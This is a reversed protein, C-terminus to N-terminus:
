NSRPRANRASNHRSRTSSAAPPARCPAASTVPQRRRGFMEQKAAGMAAAPRGGSMLPGGACHPPNSTRMIKISAAIAFKLDSFWVPSMHNGTHERIRFERQAGGWPLAFKPNPVSSGPTQPHNVALPRQAGLRGSVQGVPEDPFPRKRGSLLRSNVSNQSRTAAAPMGSSRAVKCRRASCGSYRPTARMQRRPCGSATRKM